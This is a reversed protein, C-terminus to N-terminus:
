CSALLRLLTIIYALMYRACCDCSALSFPRSTAYRLVESQREDVDRYMTSTSSSEAHKNCQCVLSHSMYFRMYFSSGDQFKQPPADDPRKM